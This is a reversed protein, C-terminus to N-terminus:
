LETLYYGCLHVVTHMTTEGTVQFRLDVSSIGVSRACLIGKETRRKNQIGVEERGEEREGKKELRGIEIGCIASMMENGAGTNVSSIVRLFGFM